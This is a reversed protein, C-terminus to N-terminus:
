AQQRLFAELEATRDLAAAAARANELADAHHPDRRLAELFLALAEDRRGAQWLM